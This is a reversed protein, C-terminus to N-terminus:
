ESSADQVDYVKLVNNELASSTYCMYGYKNIM